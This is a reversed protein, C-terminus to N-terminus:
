RRDYDDSPDGEHIGVHIDDAMQKWRDSQAATAPGKLIGETRVLVETIDIPIEQDFRNSFAAKMVDWCEDEHEEAIVFSDHVPLSPIGQRAFHMMVEEAIQSDHYMLTNGMSKWFFHRIPAHREELLPIIPDLNADTPKIPPVPIPKGRRKAKNVDKRLAYRLANKAGRPNKANVIILMFRKILKRMADTDPHGDLKYPDETPLTADALCYLIHPHIAKFDLEAVTNGNIVIDERSEEPIGEWWGGYFRGHLELSEDVFVRYLFKRAPDIPTKYKDPDASLMQNLEDLDNQDLDLEIDAQEIVGNILELNQRMRHVVPEDPTKLIDRKWDTKDKGNKDKKPKGKSDTVVYDYKKGKLKVTEEGSTDRYVEVAKIGSDNTAVMALLKDTAKMKSRHSSRGDLGKYGRDFTVYGKKILYDTVKKVNRYSLSTDSYAGTGSYAGSDMGIDIYIHSGESAAHILNCLIVRIHDVLDERYSKQPPIKIGTDLLDDVMKTITPSTSTKLPDFPWYVSLRSAKEYIDETM